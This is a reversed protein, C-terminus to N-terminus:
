NGTKGGHDGIIVWKGNEKMLIDTWRGKEWEAKGEKNERVATYYYHVYAFDRKVWITSPTITLYIIKANKFWYDLSNLLAEKGEPAEYDYAWGRYTDDFYKPYAQIDGKGLYDNYTQVTKWVEQQEATWQQALINQTFAFFIIVAFLIVLRLM